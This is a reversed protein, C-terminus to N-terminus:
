KGQTTRKAAQFAEDFTMKGSKATSSQRTNGSSEIKAAQTKQEYKKLAAQTAKSELVEPPVATRYLAPIDNALSPHRELVQRMEDEYLQWNPDISDLQKKVKSARVESVERELSNIKEQYPTLYEKIMNEVTPKVYEGSKSFVEEWTGPSWDPAIGQNQQQQAVVQQAQAPTLNLGYQAGMRMINEVPNAMFQDYAQVKQSHAQRQKALDQAKRTFAAQMQKYHPRLAEQTEPPLSNFDAYFSEEAQAQTGQPSSEPQTVPKSETQVSQGIGEGPAQAQGTKTDPGNTKLEDM